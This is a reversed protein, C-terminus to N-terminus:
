KGLIKVTAFATALQAMITTFQIISTIAKEKKETMVPVIIQSGPEVKPNIRIFGFVKTQKARGNAYLVYAKNRISMETLGGAASICEKVTLGEDYTITSPNLVAGSISVKNDIKPIYIQDGNVLVIDEISGPLKMAQNLNLAINTAGRKLIAGPL